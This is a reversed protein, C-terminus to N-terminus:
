DSKANNLTIIAAGTSQFGTKTNYTFIICGKGQADEPWIASSKNDHIELKYMNKTELTFAWAQIPEPTTERTDPIIVSIDQILRGEENIIRLSYTASPEDITPEIEITKFTVEGKEYEIVSQLKAFVAHGPDDFIQRISRTENYQWYGSDDYNKVFTWSDRYDLGNLFPLIFAIILIITAAAPVLFFSPKRKVLMDWITEKDKDRSKYKIYKGLFKRYDPVAIEESKKKDIPLESTALADMDQGMQLIERRFASSKLLAARVAKEQKKTATGMLYAIIADGDPRVFGDEPEQRSARILRNLLEDEDSLRKSPNDSM